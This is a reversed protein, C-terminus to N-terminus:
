NGETKKMDEIISARTQMIVSTLNKRAPCIYSCAGCGCCEMGYFKQFAEKDSHNALMALKNPLLKLPCVEVCKGCRICPGEEVAAEDKRYALIEATLKTLPVDLSFMSIGMMPGGSIVKEPQSTFGGVGEIIDRYSTGLRVSYNGPEKIADGTVTVIRTILPTNLAVANYISTVTYVNNVICGVDAPHLSFNLKRGTAVYVIQREGGQPYKTKAVKIEINKEKAVLGQLKQIAKPKNDEIVIIGKAKDFLKLFIKLGEIVKEPQEMMIRYDSTLYPECEAGNIIVYEIKNDDEPTLKAHTPYGAGGMGVIGAEKIIERIQDKSLKNYDRAKGFGDVTRYENDNEIIVSEVMEGTITLRKEVAKVTGSVSSIVNSSVFGDAEGIKQGVLVQDGKAVIPKANSGIHQSMPYVLEGKPLLETIPKDMTLEKGEYPHIGGLFTSRGM